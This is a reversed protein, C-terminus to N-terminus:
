LHSTVQAYDFAMAREKATERATERECIRTVSGKVIVCTNVRSIVCAQARGEIYRFDRM